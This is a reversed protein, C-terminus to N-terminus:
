SPDNRDLPKPIFWDLPLRFKYLRNPYVQYRSLGFALYFILYGFASIQKLFFSDSASRGDMLYVILYAFMLLSSLSVILFHRLEDNKPALQRDYYMSLNMCNNKMRFWIQITLLFFLTTIFGYAGDWHILWFDYFGHGIMALLVGFVIVRIGYKRKLFKNLMLGYCITSTFTMHAVSAYLARGGINYLKSSYIYDINEVFAFGLASISGYVIYDIPEDISKPIYRIMLLVPIIKAAEEIGGIIFISYFLDYLASESPFSPLGFSHAVQYVKLVLSSTIAASLLFVILLHWKREPEFYDIRRIYDSWIFSISFAFLVSFLLQGSFGNLLVSAKAAWELPIVYYVLLLPIAIIAALAIGHKFRAYSIYTRKNELLKFAKIEGVIWVLIFFLCIFNLILIAPGM